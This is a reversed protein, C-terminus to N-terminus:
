PAMSAGKEGPKKINETSMGEIVDKTLSNFSDILEQNTIGYNLHYQCLAYTGTRYVDLLATRKALVVAEVKLTDKLTGDIDAPLEALKARLTADLSTSINESVDPPPEACFKGRQQGELKVIAIRRAATVTLTGVTNDVNDEVVARNFFSNISSACGTLLFPICFLLIKRLM